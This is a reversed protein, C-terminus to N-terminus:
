LIGIDEKKIWGSYNIPSSIFFWGNTSREIIIKFGAPLFRAESFIGSPGERISSDKLAIAYKFRKLYFENGLFPLLSFTCLLIFSLCIKKLKIKFYLLSLIGLLLTFSLFISPPLSLTSQFVKDIFIEDDGQNYSYYLQGKSENLNNLVQPGVWGLNISKELHYRALAFNKKKLFLTGINYYFVKQDFKSKNAIIKEHFADYNGSLFTTELSKLIPDTSTNIMNLNDEASYFLDINSCNM